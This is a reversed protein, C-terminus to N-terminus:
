PILAFAPRFTIAMEDLRGLARIRARCRALAQDTVERQAFAEREARRDFLAGQLLGSAMRGHRREIAHAIARERRLALAAAVHFGMLAGHPPPCASVIQEIRTWSGDLLARVPAGRLRASMSAATVGVLTEWAPQGDIDAYELWLAWLPMARRRSRTAVPRNQILPPRDVCDPRLARATLLRAAEEAARIRLDATLGASSASDSCALAPFPGGGLVYAATLQEDAADCSLANLAGLARGRKRVVEAVRSEEVTGRAVLHVQHVSRLQGIRDVRGVRQEIRTPTWPVELHVVLRCRHQLNLGESATDTALLVRRAGTTFDHLVRLRETATLGGHLQCTDFGALVRDLMALTDRYETFVIAPENSRRLLRRLTGVKSENRAARQALALLQELTRREAREDALGPAGIQADPEADDAAASILPLALQEDNTAEGSLLALRRELSRALSTASSCARRTLVVMALRAAPSTPRRWVRAVYDELARHMRLELETPRAALWRTRRRPAGSADARTRRFVLLPFAGDLDGTATLRGFSADDGSHPTATLMVVTRAREALLTAAAHRDSQGATGHAEDVVLLDWVLAELARMVEPRKIYDTSTLVLPHAAWPNASDLPQRQLSTSDLVVPALHFRGTLESRWQDRLGAPCVVLVHADGRRALTEAVILGAQITKGLGVADAILLRTALGSVVALAPELQYALVAIDADRAARLSTITPTAHALMERVLRRWQQRSVIRTSRGSPLRELSECPLIYRARTGRNDRDCGVVTVITADGYLASEWVTWREDRIRVVDGRRPVDAAM